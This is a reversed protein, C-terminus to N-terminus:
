SESEDDDESESIINVLKDKLSSLFNPKKGGEKHPRREDGYPDDGYRDDDEDDEDRRNFQSWGPVRVQETETRMDRHVESRPDVPRRYPQQPQRYQQQSDTYRERDPDPESERTQQPAQTGSGYVRSQPQTQPQQPQQIPQPTS